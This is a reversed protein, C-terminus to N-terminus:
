KKYISKNLLWNAVIDAIVPRSKNDTVTDGDLHTIEDLMIINFEKSSILEKYKYFSDIRSILGRSLGVCLFPIEIKKNEGIDFYKAQWGKTTDNYHIAGFDLLIRTPQYWEEMNFYENCEAKLYEIYNNFELQPFKDYPIWDIFNKGRHLGVVNVTTYPSFTGIHIADARGFTATFLKFRQYNDDFDILFKALNTIPFKKLFGKHPEISIENPALYALLAKSNIVFLFSMDRNVDASCPYFKGSELKDKGEIINYPIIIIGNKYQYENKIYGRLFPPGDLLIAKDIFNYGRTEYNNDKFKNALFTTVYLAGLSYGALIVEEARNRAEKVVNYLDYLLVNIGWYGVFSIDETSPQYFTKNKDKLKFKNEHFQDLLLNLNKEKLVKKLLRRDELFNSRREWIWVETDGLRRTISFALNSVTGAGSYIGTILIIIRKARENKNFFRFVISRNLDYSGYSELLFSKLRDTPITLDPTHCEPYGKVYFMEFGIDSEQLIYDVGAIDKLKVSATPKKPILEEIIAICNTLFIFISLLFIIFLRKM